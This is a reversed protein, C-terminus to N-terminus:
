GPWVSRSVPLVHYGSYKVKVEVGAPVTKQGFPCLEDKTCSHAIHWFVFLCLNGQVQAVGM